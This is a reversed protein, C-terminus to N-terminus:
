LMPWQYNTKIQPSAVERYDSNCAIANSKNLVPAEFDEELLVTDKGFIVTVVAVVAVFITNVVVVVMKVEVNVVVDLVFDVVVVVVVVVAVSVVVPVVVAVVGVVVMDTEVYEGVVAEEVDVVVVEVVVLFVV